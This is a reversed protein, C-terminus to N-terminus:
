RPLIRNAVQMMSNYRAKEFMELSVYDVDKFNITENLNANEQTKKVENLRNERMQQMVENLRDEKSQRRVENINEGNIRTEIVFENLNLDQSYNNRQVENINQQNFNRFNENYNTYNPTERLMENSKNFNTATERLQEFNYNNEVIRQSQVQKFLNLYEEDRYDMLM